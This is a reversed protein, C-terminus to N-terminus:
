DGAHTGACGSKKWAVRFSNGAYQSRRFNEQKEEREDILLLGDESNKLMAITGINEPLNARLHSTYIISFGLNIGKRKWISWSPIIWLGNQSM